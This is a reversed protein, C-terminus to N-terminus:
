PEFEQVYSLKPEVRDANDYYQWQYEVFGSGQNKVVEVMRNFLHVGEEDQVESLDEGNLQPKYPHMVMKPHMDNIWFYGREKDGYRAVEIAGKAKKKAKAESMEGDQSLQYYHEMVTMQSQILNQVKDKKEQWLSNYVDPFYVFSVIVSFVAIILVMILILQNQFSKFSFFRM